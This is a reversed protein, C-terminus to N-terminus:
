KKDFKTQFEKEYKKLIDKAWIILDEIRQGPPHAQACCLELNELRNDLTDGNKHHVYETPLLSRELHNSMVLRHEFIRGSGNANPHQPEWVLKYGGSITGSGKNRTKITLPDNYKLLRVYHMGCLNQAHVKKNCNSVSCLDYKICLRLNELNNNSRNGDLHTIYEYKEIKRGLTKSMVYYHELVKGNKMANPHEPMYLYINGNRTRSGNGNSRRMLYLPDGYKKYRSYHTSCLGRALIVQNCGEISCIKKTVM